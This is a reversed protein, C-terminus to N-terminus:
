RQRRRFAAVKARNGCGGMSCWRRKRARSRDEYVAGCGECARLYARRAITEIADRAISALRAAAPSPAAYRCSGDARLVPVPPDDGAFSNITDVDRPALEAGAAVAAFSRRIAARLAEADATEDPRVLEPLAAGAAFQVATPM